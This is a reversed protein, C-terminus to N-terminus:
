LGIYALDNDGESEESSTNELIIACISCRWNSAWLMGVIILYIESKFLKTLSLFSSRLSMPFLLLNLLEGIFYETSLTELLLM